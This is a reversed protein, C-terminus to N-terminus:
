TLTVINHYYKVRICLEIEEGEPFYTGMSNPFPQMTFTPFRKNANLEKLTIILRFRVLAM